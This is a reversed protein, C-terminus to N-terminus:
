KTFLCDGPLALREDNGRPEREGDLVAPLGPPIVTEAERRLVHCIWGDQDGAKSREWDYALVAEALTKRAEAVRGSQHLAMALVLRPAPGLVGSAEGRM